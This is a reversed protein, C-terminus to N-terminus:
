PIMPPPKMVWNWNRASAWTRLTSTAPRHDRVGGDASPAHTRSCPSPSPVTYSDISSSAAATSTTARNQGFKARRLAVSAIARAASDPADITPRIQSFGKARLRASASRISLSADCIPAGVAYKSFWIWM